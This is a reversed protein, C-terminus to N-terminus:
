KKIIYTDLFQQKAQPWGEQQWVNHGALPYCIWSKETKIHNYGAFNTHPPCVPDQLGIAMLVPCQIKDTFNKVDFYSLTKYLDDESICGERAAGLIWNGPWDVLAFYDKYDNLFPASPAIAKLRHDLSAAVLTLAGGQSEGNAVVRETDTQPLSCIFDIARVADAFAGRYYYQYKDGLGRTCWDDKEGPKRNFAQNRICLQFEIMQPNDSPNPYWVESGYGMYSINAPYKGEAVPTVLLGSIWEGGFSKMDVRYSKRVDNSHDKLLTLKYEPQVKALEALTQEWFQDFDPQKDQESIINEPNFGLNTRTLETRVGDKVLYLVAKYFGAALDLSIEPAYEHSEVFQGFDTSIELVLDGKPKEAMGIKLTHPGKGTFIGANDAIDFWANPLLAQEINRTAESIVAITSADSAYVSNLGQQEQAPDGCYDDGPQWYLNTESQSALGGWGWFNLGAFLGGEEASKVIRGCVHRYYEDRATTPSGKKFQFGDRPFGFEELVVPKGYKAALALHEDIYKDTNEIAVPLNTKLTNERVWSWNYPWIHINLYDIDPCSHIKEYLEMSNECGWSGESGSSVMHNPDLSKILAASTWMFDVFAAQGEPDNRFCRPENGIQWSFITPDDKYAKGTITNTRSVVNRVHDYYLEKAKDNTVFRSVSEMFPVYGSEAPILAKGAGAWELYMGYGGSWEWSNNIYLVAKMGREAMEALLYDLGRFITDNYVGPEKQLTPSVRTPIGDPGDGGVLVRLNTMGLAKLTDLEAKLRARDGGRGESGLIAGYWFNTGVFHSPYDDCVFLGDEVKVFTSAASSSGEKPGCSLMAIASALM